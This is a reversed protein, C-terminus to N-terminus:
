CGLAATVKEKRVVSSRAFISLTRAMDWGEGGDNEHHLCLEPHKVEYVKNGWMGLAQSHEHACDPIHATVAECIM